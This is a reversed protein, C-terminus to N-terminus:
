VEYGWSAAFDVQNHVQKGPEMVGTVEVRLSLGETDKL